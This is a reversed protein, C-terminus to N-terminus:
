PIYKIFLLRNCIPCVQNHGPTGESIEAQPMARASSYGEKIEVQFNHGGNSCRVIRRPMKVKM